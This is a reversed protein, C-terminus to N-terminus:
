NEERVTLTDIQKLFDFCIAKGARMQSPFSLKTPFSVASSLAIEINNARLNRNQRLIVFLLLCCAFVISASHLPIGWQSLSLSPYDSRGLITIQQPPCTPYM